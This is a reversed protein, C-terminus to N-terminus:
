LLCKMFYQFKQESKEWVPKLKFYVIKRLMQFPWFIAFPWIVKNRAFQEWFPWIAVM